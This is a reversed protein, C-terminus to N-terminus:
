PNGRNLEKPVLLCLADDNLTEAHAIEQSPIGGMYRAQM